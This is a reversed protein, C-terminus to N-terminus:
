SNGPRKPEMSQPPTPFEDLIKRFKEAFAQNSADTHCSLVEIFNKLQGKFINPAWRFFVNNIFHTAIFNRPKKDQMNQLEDFDANSLMKRQKMGALLSSDVNLSDGLQQRLLEVNQLIAACIINLTRAIMHTPYEIGILEGQGMGWSDSM